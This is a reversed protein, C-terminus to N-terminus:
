QRRGDGRGRHRHVHVGLMTDAGRLAATMADTDRYSAPPAAVAGPLDPLKAPNRAVLRTAIGASSLFRAVQSGVRGTVGTVAIVGTTHM